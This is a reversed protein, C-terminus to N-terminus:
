SKEENVEAANKTKSKIKLKYFVAEGRSFRMKKEESRGVPLPLVGSSGGGQPIRFQISSIPCSVSILNHDSSGLPSSLTVAYVSPNYILFLNFINPTDGLHDPIRTPHQVLQQRDHPITFNFPLESPHDISPSSLWLEQHVNFDGLISIEFCLQRLCSDTAEERNGGVKEIRM